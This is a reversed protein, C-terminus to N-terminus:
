NERQSLGHLFVDIFLFTERELEEYHQKSISHGSDRILRLRMGQLVHLILQGTKEPVAVSFESTRKGERIIRTLVKCEEEAFCNFLDKFVPKLASWSNHSLSSLNLLQSALKVRQRVYTELKKGATSKGEVVVHMRRLFEQQERQIVGRFIDEKTPFYYYLSAKGMGVDEAIEDMTVKTLGYVAFRSQAANLILTEKERSLEPIKMRM